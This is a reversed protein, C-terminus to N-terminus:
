ASESIDELLRLYASAAGTWSYSEEVRRRGARGMRKRLSEDELCTELGNRLAEADDSPVLIGTEGPVVLEENGAINTAVVPLGSAMAELVANPMGEDRSPFLFLNAERYLARLADKEQWGAFHIREAIGAEQAAAELSARASGDGAITWSWAMDRLESLARMAVDLGKQYVVRGVSLIRPPSWARPAPAYADLDVGNPIVLIEANPSFALALARLGQSNAVLADADRWILRLFPAILRHYLRFNYPRFGPVDGGRMSVVYPISFRKKLVWAIAGSPVGFFAVVADPHARRAFKWGEWLGAAIFTLQEVAGSRDLRRRLAPVRLIRVGEWVEERPFDGFRVTMLTVQHGQRAMERALNASANGAGGGIPPFEPIFMLINKM